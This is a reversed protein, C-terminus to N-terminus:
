PKLLAIVAVTVTGIQIIVAVWFQWQGTIKAVKVDTAEKKLEGKAIEIQRKHMDGLQVFKTDILDRLRGECENVLQRLHERQEPQARILEDISEEHRELMATVLLRYETWGDGRHDHETM